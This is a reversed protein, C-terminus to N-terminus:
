KIFNEPWFIPHQSCKHTSCHINTIKANNGEGQVTMEREEDFSKESNVDLSYHLEYQYTITGNQNKVDIVTPKIQGGVVHDMFKKLRSSNWNAQLGRRLNPHLMTLLEDSKKESM